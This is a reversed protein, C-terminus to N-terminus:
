RALWRKVDEMSEILWICRLRSPAGAFEALRVSEWLFERALMQFHQAIEFADEPLKHPNVQGEKVLRLFKIAPVNHTVGKADTVPYTRKHVEYFRFFPNTSAGVTVLDGPHM